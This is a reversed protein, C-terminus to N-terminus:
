RMTNADRFVRQKLNFYRIYPSCQQHWIRLNYVARWLHRRPKDTTSNVDILSM